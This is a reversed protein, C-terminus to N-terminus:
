SVERGDLDPCGLDKAHIHPGSRNAHRRLHLVDCIGDELLEKGGEEMSAAEVGEPEEDGEVEEEGNEDEEPYWLRLLDTQLLHVNQETPPIM